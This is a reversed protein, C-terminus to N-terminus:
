WIFELKLYEAVEILDVSCAKAERRSSRVVYEFYDVWVFHGQVGASVSWILKFSSPFNYSLLLTRVAPHVSALKVLM